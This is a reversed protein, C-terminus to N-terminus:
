QTNQTTALANNPQKCHKMHLQHPNVTHRRITVHGTNHSIQQWANLHGARRIRHKATTKIHIVQRTNTVPGCRHICVSGAHTHTHTRLAENDSCQASPCQGRDAAWDGGAVRCGSQRMRVCVCVCVCVCVRVRACGSALHVGLNLM